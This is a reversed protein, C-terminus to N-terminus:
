HSEFMCIEHYIVCMGQLSHWGSHPPKIPFKLAENIVPCYENSHFIDKHLLYIMLRFLGAM